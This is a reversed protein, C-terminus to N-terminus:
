EDLKGDEYPSVFYKAMLKHLERKTDTVDYWSIGAELDFALEQARLLDRHTEEASMNDCKKVFWSSEYISGVM